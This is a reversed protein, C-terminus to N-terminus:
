SKVVSRNKLERKLARLKIRDGIRARIRKIANNANANIANQTVGREEAAAKATWGDIYIRNFAHKTHPGFSAVIDEIAALAEGIDDSGEKEILVEDPTAPLSLIETYGILRETPIDKNIEIQKSRSLFEDSRIFEPFLDEVTQGTLEMLKETLGKAKKDVDPHTKRYKSFIFPSKRKLNIVNGIDSPSIGLFEAAKINTWGRKKIAQYLAGHKIKAVVTLNFTENKM